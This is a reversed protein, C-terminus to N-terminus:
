SKEVVVEWGGVLPYCKGLVYWPSKMFHSTLAVAAHQRFSVQVIAPRSHTLVYGRGALPRCYQGMRRGFRAINRITVQEGAVGSYFEEYLLSLAEESPMRSVSAGGCHACSRLNVDPARQFRFADVPIGRNCLLCGPLPALLEFEALHRAGNFPILPNM